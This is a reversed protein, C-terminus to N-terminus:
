RPIGASFRGELREGKAVAHGCLFAAADLASGCEMQVEVLRVSGEGAAIRFGNGDAQLVTGPAGGGEAEPVARLCRLRKGRWFTFAGPKPSLGRIRDAVARASENWAILGHGSELKPATTPEGTQPHRELGGREIADLTRVLCAAGLASLRIALEGATELPGVATRDQFIWDGTDVREEIFFTTVGTETEGRIVAWQIPAAGRYKPLLSAHVNVTGRPPMRFVAPPLIRFAVVAFCDANWDRLTELFDPSDLIEPQAVPIGRELALRKVPPHSEKLGRGRTRDPGTVVGAVRHSSRMLADLCPVAFDPTGMFVLRM